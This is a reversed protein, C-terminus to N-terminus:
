EQRVDNTKNGSAAWAEEGGRFWFIRAYRKAAVYKTAEYADCGFPGDGMIIIPNTPHSPRYTSVTRDVFETSSEPPGDPAFWVAGPVAASGRGVDIVLPVPAQGLLEKIQPTGVTVAGPVSLPTPSYDDLPCDSRSAVNGDAFQPMGVDRLAVIVRKLGPTGDLTKPYEAAIRWTSRHPWITVYRAYLDKATDRQGKMDYAAILSLRASEARGMTEAGLEPEPDGAIAQHLLDIADDVRGALLRIDALMLLRHKNSRAQGDPDLRAIAQLHTEAIDHKGTMWGCNALVWHAEISGPEILLADNAAYEAEQCKGEASLERARAAIALANRPALQLTRAILRHADAWDKGSDPDQFRQIKVTLLWGLAAMADGFDPQKALSQYLLQEAETLGGISDDSDLIARARFFLDIADPDNPRDHLSRASEIHDLNFHLASAIRRVIGDRVDEM